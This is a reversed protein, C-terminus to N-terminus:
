VDHTVKASGLSWQRTVPALLLGLLLVSTQDLLNVGFPVNVLSSHFPNLGHGIAYPVWNLFWMTQFNDHEGLAVHQAGARWVNWYVVVALACFATVAVVDWM